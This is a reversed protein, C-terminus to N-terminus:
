AQIKPIYKGVICKYGQLKWSRYPGNQLRHHGAEPTGDHHHQISRQQHSVKELYIRKCLLTTVLM